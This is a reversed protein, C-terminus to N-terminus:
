PLIELVPVEGINISSIIDEKALINVQAYRGDAQPLLHQEVQKDNLNIIWYELIGASAYTPAKLRRDKELTHDSVEVLVLVEEPRPLGSRYNDEKYKAIIFDPEPESQDDLIIPNQISFSYEKGFRLIFYQALLNVCAAHFKRVPSMDLIKGHLLEVRDDENLLGTKMMQHYQEVNWKYQPTFLDSIGSITTM